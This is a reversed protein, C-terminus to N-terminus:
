SVGGTPGARSLARRSGYLEVGDRLADRLVPEHSAHPLEDQGYELVRADNGSWATVNAQLETLQRNWNPDDPDCGRARVILLDIDSTASAQGSAVSGFLMALLPPRTWAAIADRLRGLLQEPVTALKEVWEAALHNRNLRYLHANGVSRREVIGERALRDAANRIGQHSGRHARRRIERGSMEVDARALVTLVDADLTPTVIQLPHRFDM